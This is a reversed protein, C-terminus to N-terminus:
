DDDTDKHHDKSHHDNDKVEQGNDDFGETDGLQLTSGFLNLSQTAADYNKNLHFISMGVIAIFLVAVGRYSRQIGSQGDISQKRGNIMSLGIWDRHRLTHFIVGAVHTLAVIIFTNAFFEHVEELVEKNGGTTMLYGTIALGLALGMMVLAAWSSAPNHGLTRVGKGTLLQRFYIVFDRPKLAFSSFKAYKSGLIGWVVRLIVTLALVLGLLMHFAYTPSDDDIVKSIFFAGLFTTAFVWHFVRTPLDYVTVQKM